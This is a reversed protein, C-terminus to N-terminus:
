SAAEVLYNLLTILERADAVSLRVLTRYQQKNEVRQRTGIEIIPMAQGRQEMYLELTPLHSVYEHEGTQEVWGPYQGLGIPPLEDLLHMANRPYNYDVEHEYGSNGICCWAPCPRKDPHGVKDASRSFIVERLGLSERLRAREPEEFEDVVEEAECHSCTWESERCIGETHLRLAEAEAARIAAFPDNM